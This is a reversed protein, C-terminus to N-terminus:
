RYSTQFRARAKPGKFKKSEVRRPDDVLMSRDYHMLEKRIVDSDAYASLGKAIASRVAQAVASIGGGTATMTIDVKKALSGALKSVYIPELMIYKLEPPEVVDISFSNLTIRGTGPKVSARVIASKRKSRVLVVKPKKSVKRKPAPKRGHQVAQQAQQPAVQQVPQQVSPVQQVQQVNSVNAQEAM